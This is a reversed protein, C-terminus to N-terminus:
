WSRVLRLNRGVAAAPRRKIDLAARLNDMTIIENKFARYLTSYNRNPALLKKFKGKGKLYKLLCLFDGDNTVVVANDYNKFEIVASWLVFEADVNGKAVERGNENRTITPKFVLVFGAEQLSTYLNQNTSVYGIFMFAREVAFKNKLWLRFKRYDIQWGM